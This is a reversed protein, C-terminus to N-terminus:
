KIPRRYSLVWFSIGYIIGLIAFIILEIITDKRAFVEFTQLYAPAILVILMMGSIISTALGGTICVSLTPVTFRRVILWIPLGIIWASPYAVIPSFVFWPTLGVLANSPVALAIMWCVIGIPLLTLPAIAFAVLARQLENYSYQM